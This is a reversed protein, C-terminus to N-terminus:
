YPAPVGILAALLAAGDNKVTQLPVSLQASLEQPTMGCLFLDREARLTNESILLADGLTKGQLQEAMDKGTLLGAVTIEPGFFNNEIEFVQVSLWSVRATLMESLLRLTPAAAKGTAISVTRHTPPNQPLYDTLYELEAAFEAMLSRLLGVGNEIQEYDGYYSEEPLPLGAKLYFEDACCFLRNGTEQELRDGVANVQAIVARCEEPTFPTLPYLGERYRTLGAPVVSVSSLAPSLAALDAMTRDLEAGDNVGRCLVIQGCLRIDAEALRTLYSLVEGARRNKMMDCRLTPNTTHVSVNVPSIHMKIIRDIDKDRLNTLTIYNGHLFSLRADDDKFYLTERLGKPLQDIFCFICKNQCRQKKDMLPTEFDLGIDDYEAKHITPSLTAGGRRLTLTVAKEALYFRYDLVDEIESGNIAILVDGPLVGAKEALSRPEVACIKVM